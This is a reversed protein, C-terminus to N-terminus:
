EELLVGAERAAEVFAHRAEAASRVGDLAKLCTDRAEHHRAGREGPWHVSMLFDVAERTSGIVHVKDLRIKVPKTFRKESM